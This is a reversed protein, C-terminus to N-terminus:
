LYSAVARAEKAAKGGVGERHHFLYIQNKSDPFYGSIFTPLLLIFTNTLPSQKTKEAGGGWMTNETTSAGTRKLGTPGTNIERKCLTTLIFVKTGKLMSHSGTGERILHVSVPGQYPVKHVHFSLLVNGESPFYM